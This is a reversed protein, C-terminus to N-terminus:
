HDGGAALGQLRPDNLPLLPRRKLQAIFAFVFVGGIAAAAVPYMWAHWWGFTPHVGPAGTGAAYALSRSGHGPGEHGFSPAIVWFLDVLRLVVIAGAVGALMRVNRKTRRWLLLIFPVFFHFVVLFLAVYKWGTHTRAVYYPAEEAINASWIILYQSFSLYAWLMVFAMLLNGLDHFIPIGVVGALPRRDSLWAVLAIVMAMTGLAQAVVFLLGWITSMWDPDLSMAWDVAALTMTLVYLVLGPGSFQQLRRFIRPDGTRDQEDAWRNIVLMIAIWVAFYIVARAVFWGPSLWKLKFWMLESNHADRWPQNTWEYLNSMGLAVPIFLLAMLPLLRAGSELPRRIVAGWTGGVLHALMLISFCGLAIGTWFLYAYLYAQFFAQASHIFFGVALLVIGVGAALLAPFQVRNLKEDTPRDDGHGDGRRLNHGPAATM